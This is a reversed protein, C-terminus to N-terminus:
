RALRQMLIRDRRRVLGLTADVRIDFLEVTRLLRWSVMYEDSGTRCWTRESVCIERWGYVITGHM